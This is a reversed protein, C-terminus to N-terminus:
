LFSCLVVHMILNLWHFSIYCNLGPILRELKFTAFIHNRHDLITPSEIAATVSLFIGMPSERKCFDKETSNLIPLDKSKSLILM